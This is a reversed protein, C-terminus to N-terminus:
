ASGPDSRTSSSGPSSSGGQQGLLQQLQAENVCTAGVCLEDTHVEHAFLRKIGNTSNDFWAIMGNIFTENALLSNAQADIDSMKLDLEQVSKTLVPIIGVYNL